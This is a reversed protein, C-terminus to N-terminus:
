LADRVRLRIHRSLLVSRLPSAVCPPSQQTPSFPPRPSPPLLPYSARPDFRAATNKASPFLSPFRSEGHIEIHRAFEHGSLWKRPPRCDAPISTPSSCSPRTSPRVSSVSPSRKNWDAPCKREVYFRREEHIGGRALRYRRSSIKPHKQFPCLRADAQAPKQHHPHLTAQVTLIYEESNLM